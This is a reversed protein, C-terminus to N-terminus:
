KKPGEMSKMIGLIDDVEKARLHYGISRKQKARATLVEKLKNWRIQADKKELEKIKQAQMELILCVEYVTDSMYKGDLSMGLVKEAKKQAEIISVTQPM